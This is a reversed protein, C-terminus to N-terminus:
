YDVYNPHFHMKATNCWLGYPVPEIKCEWAEVKRSCYPCFNRPHPNSSSYQEPREGYVNGCRCTILEYM